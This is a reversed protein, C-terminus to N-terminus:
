KHQLKHQLYMQQCTLALLTSLVVRTTLLVLGMSAQAQRGVSREYLSIDEPLAVASVWSRAM